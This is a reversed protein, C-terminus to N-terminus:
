HSFHRFSFIVLAYMVFHPNDTQQLRFLKSLFPKLTVISTTLNLLFLIHNTSFPSTTTQNEKHLDRMGKFLALFIHLSPFFIFYCKVHISHNRSLSLSLFLSPFYLRNVLQYYKLLRTEYVEDSAIVVCGMNIQM